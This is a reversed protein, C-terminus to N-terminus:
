RSKGRIRYSFIAGSLILAVIASAASLIWYWDQRLLANVLVATLVFMGFLQLIYFSYNVKGM